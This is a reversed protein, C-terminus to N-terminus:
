RRNRSAIEDDREERMQNILEVVDWDIPKGGRSALIDERHQRIRDLGALQLKLTERADQGRRDLERQVIERLMDSLSRHEREAISKLGEYQEPELLLQTRHFRQAM